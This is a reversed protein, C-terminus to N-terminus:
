ALVMVAALKATELKGGPSVAAVATLAAFPVITVIFIVPAGVVALVFVRVIVSGELMGMALTEPAVASIVGVPVTVALATVPAKEM